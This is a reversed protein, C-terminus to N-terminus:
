VQKIDELETTTMCDFWDKDLRIKEVRPFRLTCETRFQGSDQIEAAKIQFYFCLFTLLSTGLVSICTLQSASLFWLNTKHSSFVM